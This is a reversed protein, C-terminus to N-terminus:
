PRVGEGLGRRELAGWQQQSRQCPGCGVSAEESRHFPRCSPNSCRPRWSLVLFLVNVNELSSSSVSILYHKRSSSAIIARYILSVGIINGERRKKRGQEANSKKFERTSQIDGGGTLNYTHFTFHSIHVQLKMIYVNKANSECTHPSTSAFHSSEIYPRCQIGDHRISYSLTLTAM